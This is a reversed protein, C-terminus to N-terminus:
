RRRFHPSRIATVDGIVCTGSSLAFQARVVPTSGVVDVVHQVVRYVVRAGAQEHLRSNERPEARSATIEFSILAVDDGGGYATYGHPQRTFDMQIISFESFNTYSSTPRFRGQPAAAAVCFDVCVRPGECARMCFFHLASNKHM